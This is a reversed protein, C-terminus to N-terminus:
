DCSDFHRRRKFRSSHEVENVIKIRTPIKFAEVKNAFFSHIHRRMDARTNTPDWPVIDACILQGTVANSESYVQCDAIMPSQLLITEVEVPLVKQGGVNIVEQVRGRIRIFGDDSSEVIDGTSFWEDDSYSKADNNLYGLFGTTSRLQLEDNVIRYSINTNDIKFFTSHSSRSSTFAIGMESTGFTQLLRARPIAQHLKRLLEEPMPETGYSILRLSELNFLQHFGGIMILNLFTPTAPLVKARRKEILRCIAEPTRESAILAVGGAFLSRLLTNIGGIHDFLLTLVISVKHKVTAGRQAALLGDLDHLIPKSTGTSGSSLLVLGSTDRTKLKEYLAPQTTEVLREITLGSVTKCLFEAGCQTWVTALSSPTPDVIPIVIARLHVLAFFVTIGTISFDGQLIVVSHKQIGQDALRGATECIWTTLQGYTITEDDQVIAPHHLWESFMELWWDRTM